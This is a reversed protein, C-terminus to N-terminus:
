FRKTGRMTSNPSKELDDDDPEEDWYDKHDYVTARLGPDRKPGKPRRLTEGWIEGGEEDPEPLQRTRSMPSRPPPSSVTVLRGQSGAQGGVVSQPPPSVARMSGGPTAAKAQAGRGAELPPTLARGPVAVGPPPSSPPPVSAIRKGQSTTEPRVGSTGSSALPPLATNATVKIAATPAIRATVHLEPPPMMMPSTPEVLAPPRQSATQARAPAHLDQPPFVMPSQPELPQLVPRRGMAPLDMPPMMVPSSPEAPQVAVRSRAADARLDMPPMTVPSSPEVPQVHVPQGATQLRGTAVPQVAMRQGATQGRATTILEASPMGLPSSMEPPQMAVLRGTGQGRATDPKVAGTSRSTSQSDRDAQSVAAEKVPQESVMPRQTGTQPRATQTMPAAAEPEVPARRPTGEPKREATSAPRFGRPSDFPSAQPQSRATQAMPVTADPAAEVPRTSRATGDGRRETATAPRAGRPSDFPSPGSAPSRQAQPSKFSGSPALPSGREEARGADRFNRPSDFQSAQPAPAVAKPSGGSRGIGEGPIALPTLHSPRRSRPSDFPSPGPSLQPQPSAPSPRVVRPLDLASPPAASQARIDLPALPHPHPAWSPAKEPPALAGLPPLTRPHAAWNPAKIDLSPLGAPQVAVTAKANVRITGDQMTVTPTEPEPLPSTAPTLTENPAVRATRFSGAMPSDGAVAEFPVVKTGQPEVPQPMVKGGKFTLLGRTSIAEAITTRFIEPVPPKAVAVRPRMRRRVCHVTAALLLLLVLVAVLLWWRLTYLYVLGALFSGTVLAITYTLLYEQLAVPLLLWTSGMAREFRAFPPRHKIRELKEKAHTERLFSCCSLYTLLLLLVAM